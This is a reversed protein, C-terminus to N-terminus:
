ERLMVDEELMRTIFYVTPCLRLTEKLCRELYPMNQLAKMTFKGGNEKLVENVEDRARDQNNFLDNCKLFSKIHTHLKIILLYIFVLDIYVRMKNM